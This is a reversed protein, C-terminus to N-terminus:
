NLKEINISSCQPITNLNTTSIRQHRVRIIEGSNLQLIVSKSASVYTSSRSGFYLNTGAYITSNVELWFQGNYYSTTGTCYLGASYSIRYIGNELITIENNILSYISGLNTRITNINLTTATTTIPQTTGTNDYAEFVKKQYFAGGDTGVYISNDSNTSVVNATQINNSENTYTIQGSTTNQSLNTVTESTIGNNITINGTTNTPKVKICWIVSSNNPRTEADGGSFAHTHTDDNTILNNTTESSYSLVNGDVSNYLKQNTFSYTTNSYNHNHTSSSLVFPTIPLATSYEQLTGASTGGRLFRGSTNINVLTFTTANSSAIYQCPFSAHFSQFNPFNSWNYTAGTLPLLYDPPTVNSTWGVIYGMDIGDTTANQSWNLTWVEGTYSWFEVIGNLLHVKATFGNVPGSIETLTPAVNATSNSRSIHHDKIDTGSIVDGNSNTALIGTNTLNTLRLGSNGATGQTIELKNQPNTAGIGVNGGSLITMKETNNTRFVLRQADTTGIFNTTPNTISNGTLGWGTGTANLVSGSFNLGTGLLIESPASSTATPNGLLRQASVDQIKPYTIQSNAIDITSITGDAIRDSTVAGYSLDETLITWDQIKDTTVANAGLRSNVVAGNAIVPWWGNGAFDGTLIIVGRETTTATNTEIWYPNWVTGNGSVTTTAGNQMYTATGTPTPLTVPSSEIGNVTTTLQGSVISNTVTTVAPAVNIPIWTTGNWSLVQGNSAGMQAIGLPNAVSGDGSLSSDVKSINGIVKLFGSSTGIYFVDNVTDKYIDGEAASQNTNITNIQSANVLTQADILKFFLVFIIFFVIKKM